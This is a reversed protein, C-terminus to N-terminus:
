LVPYVPYYSGGCVTNTPLSTGFNNRAVVYYCYSDPPSSTDRYKNSYYSISTRAVRSEQGSPYVRFVEYEGGIDQYDAGIDKWNVQVLTTDERVFGSCDELDPLCIDFATSVRVYLGVPTEPPLEPFAAVAVEMGNGYANSATVVYQYGVGVLGTHLFPSTAFNITGSQGLSNSWSVNYTDARAAPDWSLKIDSSVSEASLNVPKTPVGATASLSSGVLSSEEWFGNITYYASIAYYYTTGPSLNKHIFPPNSVNVSDKKNESDPYGSTSWYINYSITDPRQAMASIDSEDVISWDLVINGDADNEIIVDRPWPVHKFHVTDVSDDSGGGGGCAVLTVTILFILLSKNLATNM